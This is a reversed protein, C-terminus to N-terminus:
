VSQKSSELNRHENCVFSFFLPEDYGAAQQEHMASYRMSVEEHSVHM